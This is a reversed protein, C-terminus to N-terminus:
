VELRLDTRRGLLVIPIQLLKSDRRQRKTKLLIGASMSPLSAVPSPPSRATGGLQQPETTKAGTVGHQVGVRQPVEVLRQDRGLLQFSPELEQVLGDDIHGGM